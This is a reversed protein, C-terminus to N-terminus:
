PKANILSTRRVLERGILCAARQGKDSTDPKARRYAVELEWTPLCRLLAITAADKDEAPAPTKM